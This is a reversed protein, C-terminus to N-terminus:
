KIPTCYSIFQEDEEYGSSDNNEYGLEEMLSDLDEGIEIYQKQDKAKFKITVVTVHVLDDQGMDLEDESFELDLLEIGFGELLEIVKNTMAAEPNSGGRRRGEAIQLLKAIKSM